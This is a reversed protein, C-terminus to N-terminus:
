TGKKRKPSSDRATGRVRGTLGSATPGGEGKPLHFTERLRQREAKFRAREEPSLKGNAKAAKVEVHFAKVETKLQKAEARTLKGSKVAQKLQIKAPNKAAMVGTTMALLLASGCVASVIIGKM